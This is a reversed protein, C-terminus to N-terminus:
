FSQQKRKRLEEIESVLQDSIADAFAKSTAELAASAKKYEDTAKQNTYGNLFVIFGILRQHEVRIEALAHQCKQLAYLREFAADVTKPLGITRLDGVARGLLKASDSIKDRINLAFIKSDKDSINIEVEALRLYTTVGETAFAALLEENLQTSSEAIGSMPALLLLISLATKM